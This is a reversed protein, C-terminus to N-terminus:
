GWKRLWIEGEDVEIFAGGGKEVTIILDDQHNINNDFVLM